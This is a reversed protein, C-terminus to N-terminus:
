RAGVMRGHHWHGSVLNWVLLLVVAGVVAVLLSWPNFGTIGYGCILHFLFGGVLAGMVGLVIDIVIGQGQQGLEDVDPPDSRDFNVPADALRVNTLSDNHDLAGSTAHRRDGIAKAEPLLLDLALPARTHLVVGLHGRLPEGLALQFVVNGLQELLDHDRQVLERPPLVVRFCASLQGPESSRRDSCKRSRM